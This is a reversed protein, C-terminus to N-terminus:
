TGLLADEENRVSKLPQMYSPLAESKPNSVILVNNPLDLSLPTQAISIGPKVEFGWPLSMPAPGIYIPTIDYTM